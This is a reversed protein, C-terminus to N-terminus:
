IVEYDVDVESDEIKDVNDVLAPKSMEIHDCGVFQVDPYKNFRRKMIEIAQQNKDFLIFDRNHLLASEGATGSGGFIDLVTGNPPCSVSVIRNVIGLPKQTPYGLKEPGQTPVITHWWVDTPIKGAAAREKSQREPSMYPIRDSADQNFYYHDLDKVYVLINDHKTAWKKKMRQGYDYAWIIENLFHDRGYLEDMMVKVYHVEQYDIHLYISGTPKLVRWMEILRPKLFDLFEDFDDEYSTRIKDENSVTYRTKDLPIFRRAQKYGRNFPPDTYILDVSNDPIQKILELNDGYYVIGKSMKLKTEKIQKNHLVYSM